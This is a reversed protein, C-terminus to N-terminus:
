GGSTFYLAEANCRASSKTLPPRAVPCNVWSLIPSLQATVTLAARSIVCSTTWLESKGYSGNDLIFDILQGSACLGSSKQASKENAKIFGNDGLAALFNAFAEKTNGLEMTKLVDERGYGKYIVLKRQNPTISASIEYHREKALVPGRVEMRVVTSDTPELISHTVQQEPKKPENKGGFITQALFVIGGIMVMAILIVLAIAGFPIKTRRM